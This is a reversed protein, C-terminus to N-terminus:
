SSGGEGEGPTTEGSPTDSKTKGPAKAGSFKPDPASKGEGEQKAEAKAEATKIIDFEHKGQGDLSDVIKQSIGERPVGRKLTTGDILAFADIGKVGGKYTVTYM